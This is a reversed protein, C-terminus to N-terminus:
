IVWSNGPRPLKKEARSQIELGVVIFQGSDAVTVSVTMTDSNAKCWFHGNKYFHDMEPDWRVLTQGLMNLTLSFLLLLRM